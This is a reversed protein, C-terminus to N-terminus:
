GELVEQLVVHAHIEPMNEIHLRYYDILNLLLSRRQQRQMSLEHSKEMKTNLLKYLLRSEPEPLHYPHSPATAVFVGEQLDFVPTGAMCDGGPVFGLYASLELLFCLHVNTSAATTEDLFQFASFLFHFLERNEEPERISKRAIEAMFLGAASKHVDFPLSQYVHAAQIERVRNLGKEHRDYAVMEILSMVQLLSASFRAKRSRVGNILYSRMGRQETYIDAIVSTESYKMSRLVIGRTKILVKSTYNDAITLWLYSVLTM